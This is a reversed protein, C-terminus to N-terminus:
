FGWLRYPNLLYSVTTPMAARANGPRVIRDDRNEYLHGVLLKAADIIPAPVTDYGAAFTVTVANREADVSPWSSNYKLYIRPVIGSQDIEYNTNSFTLEDGGLKYKVSAVSILPAKTLELYDEDPFKDFFQKFTQEIFSRDTYAEMIQRATRIYNTILDDEDSGSVRLHDKAEQLTVLETSPGTILQLRIM